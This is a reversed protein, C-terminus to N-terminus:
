TSRRTATPSADPRITLQLEDVPSDQALAGSAGDISGPDPFLIDASPTAATLPPQIATPCSDGAQMVPQAGTRATTHVEGSPEVQVCAGALGDSAAPSIFPTMWHFPFYMATPWTPFYAATQVDTLPLM